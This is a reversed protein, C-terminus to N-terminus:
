SGMFTTKETASMDQLKRDFYIWFNDIEDESKLPIASVINVTELPIQRFDQWFLDWTVVLGKDAPNYKLSGTPTRYGLAIKSAISNLLVKSNTCLMRRNNGSQRSVFVLEVVYENLVKTLSDHNWTAM